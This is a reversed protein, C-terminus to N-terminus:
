ASDPTDNPGLHYRVADTITGRFDGSNPRWIAVNLVIMLAPHFVGTSLAWGVKRGVMLVFAAFIFWM